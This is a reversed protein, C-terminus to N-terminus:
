KFGSKKNNLHTVVTQQRNYLCVALYYGVASTTELGHDIRGTPPFNSAPPTTRLREKSM